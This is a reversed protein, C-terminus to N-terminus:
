RRGRAVRGCLIREVPSRCNEPWRPPRFAGLFTSHPPPLNALYGSAGVYGNNTSLWDTAVFEVVEDSFLPIKVTAGPSKQNIELYSNNIANKLRDVDIEILRHRLYREPRGRPYFKADILPEYRQQEYATVDRFSSNFDSSNFTPPEKTSPSDSQDVQYEQPDSDEPPETDLEGDAVQVVAVPDLSSGARLNNTEVGRFLWMGTLVITM